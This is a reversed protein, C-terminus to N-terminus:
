SFTRPALRLTLRYDALAADWDNLLLRTFVRDYDSVAL